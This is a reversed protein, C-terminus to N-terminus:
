AQVLNITDLKLRRPYGSLVGDITCLPVPSPTIAVILEFILMSAESNYIRRSNCFCISVVPSTNHVDRNNIRSYLSLNLSLSM